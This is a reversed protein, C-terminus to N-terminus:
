AKGARGFLMQCAEDTIEFPQKRMIKCYTSKVSGPGQNVRAMENIDAERGIPAIEIRGLTKIGNVGNDQLAGLVAMANLVPGIRVLFVIGLRGPCKDRGCLVKPKFFSVRSAYSSGASILYGEEIESPTGYAFM